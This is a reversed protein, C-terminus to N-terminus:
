PFMARALAEALATALAREQGARAEGRVTQLWLVQGGRVDVLAITLEVAHAMGEGLPGDVQRVSVPMLALTADVVAGLQRLLGYAPDELYPSSTRLGAITRPMADLRVRWIPERDVVRQLQHPLLWETAPARDALWFALEADLTALDVARAPLLMVRQGDLNLPAPTAPGTRGCASLALLLVPVVLTSGARRTL